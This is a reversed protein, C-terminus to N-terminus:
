PQKSLISATCETRAFLGQLGNAAGRSMHYMGM